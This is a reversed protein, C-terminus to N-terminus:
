KQISINGHHGVRRLEGAYVQGFAGKGLLKDVYLTEDDVVFNPDIDHFVQFLLGITFKLSIFFFDQKVEM